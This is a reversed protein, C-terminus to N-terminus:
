RALLNPHGHFASGNGVVSNERFEAGAPHAYYVASFIESEAALNGDLEKRGVQTRIDISPLPEDMLRLSRGCQIVGPNACDM